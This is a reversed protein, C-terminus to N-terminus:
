ARKWATVSVAVTALLLAVAAAYYITAIDYLGVLGGFLPSFIMAISAVSQTVVLKKSRLSTTTSILVLATKWSLAAGLTAIFLLHLFFLFFHTTALLLLSLTTLSLSIMLLCKLSLRYILFRHVVTIALSWVLALGIFTSSITPKTAAFHEVLLTSLFQLTITWGLTFCFFTFYLLRLLKVKLLAGLQRCHHLVLSCNSPLLSSKPTFLRWVVIGNILVGMEIVYFPLSPRFFSTLHPDSLFAGVILALVFGMGTCTATRSTITSELHAVCSLHELATLCLLVVGAFLGTVCRSTLLLLYSTTELALTSLFLGFFEGILAFLIVRRASTKKALVELLPGGVCQMLPFSGILLALSFLRM